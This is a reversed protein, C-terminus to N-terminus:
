KLERLLLFNKMDEVTITDRKAMEACFAAGSFVTTLEQETAAQLAQIADANFRLPEESFKAASQAVIRKFTTAPLISTSKERLNAVEKEQRRAKRTQKPVQVTPFTIKKCKTVSSMKSIYNHAKIGM